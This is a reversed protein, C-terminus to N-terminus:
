YGLEEEIIIVTIDAFRPKREMISVVSCMRDPTYCDACRGLDVCPVAANLRAGNKPCAVTKIREMASAEDPTIKNMGAVIVVKKPGFTLAAVRNGNGDINFIKGNVSIANASAIYLDCTLCKRMVELKEEATLNPKWHDYVSAKHARALDPLGLERATMSGGFGVAGYPVIYEAVLTCAEEKNHVLRADFGNKRLNEITKQLIERDM